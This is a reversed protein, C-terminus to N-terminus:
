NEGNELVEPISHIKIKVYSNILQVFFLFFRVDEFSLHKSLWHIHAEQLYLLVPVQLMCAFPETCPGWCIFM